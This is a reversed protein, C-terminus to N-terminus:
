LLRINMFYASSIVSVIFHLHPSNSQLLKVILLSLGITEKTDIHCIM